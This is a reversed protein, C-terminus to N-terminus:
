TTATNALLKNNAPRLAKLHDLTEAFYNRVNKAQDPPLLGSAHRGSGAAVIEMAITLLAATNRDLAEILLEDKKAM